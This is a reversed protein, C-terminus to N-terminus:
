DIWRRAHSFNNQFYYGNIPDKIIKGQNNSAHIMMGDGVYLGVHSITSSGRSTFFCLDGARLDNEGVLTGVEAMQRSSRPMKVTTFEGYLAYVMGSCDYGAKGTDGYVYPSGILTEAKSIINLIPGTADASAGGSVPVVSREIPKEMKVEPEEPKEFLSISNQPVQYKNDSEDFIIFYDQEFWAVRVTDGKNINITNTGNNSTINETAIGEVINRIRDPDLDSKDVYGTLGDSTRVLAQNGKNEVFTLYEDLFLLRIVGGSGDYLPTNKLVTYGNVGNDVKLLYEKPVYFRTGDSSEVHYTTKSAGEGIIEARNNPRYSVEVGNNLRANFSSVFIGTDKFGILGLALVFILGAPIRMKSKQM